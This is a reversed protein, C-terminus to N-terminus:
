YRERQSNIGEELYTRNVSSNPILNREARYDTISRFLSLLFMCLFTQPGTADLQRPKRWHM